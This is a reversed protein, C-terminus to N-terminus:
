WSFEWVIKNDQSVEIIRSNMLDAMLTNGNELRDADYPWNLGSYQWVITGASNVEIVRMNRSDTILTNGNELRDADRPWALGTAYEWVIEGAPNVELIRNNNSDAIITNGNPLRDANHPGNLHTHDNGPSGFQWLIEGDLNTEFSRHNDRDTILVTYSGDGYIMNADNPYNLHSGDGFVLKDTDWSVTCKSDLIFVRDNHTDSIIMEGTPQFDANHAWLLSDEYLWLPENKPSICVIKSESGEIGWQWKKGGDTIVTSGDPLRDVDHPTHLQVTDPIEQLSLCHENPDPADVGVDVDIDIDNGTNEPVEAFDEQSSSCAMISLFISFVVLIWSRIILRLTIM